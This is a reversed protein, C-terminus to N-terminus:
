NGFLDRFNARYIACQEGVEQWAAGEDQRTLLLSTGRLISNTMSILQRAETDEFGSQTLVGLWTSDFLRRHEVIWPDFVTSLEKDRRAALFLEILAVFQRNLFFSESADFYAELAGSRNRVQPVDLAIRACEKEITYKAAALVLSKKNGYHHTIAGQTVGSREAVQAMTMGSFGREFLLNIASEMIATTTNASREKQSQRQKLKAVPM